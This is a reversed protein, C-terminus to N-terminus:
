GHPGCAAAHQHFRASRATRMCASSGDSGTPHRAARAVESSSGRRARVAPRDKGTEGVAYRRRRRERGAWASSRSPDFRPPRVSPRVRCRSASYNRRRGCVRGTRACGYIHSGDTVQTTTRAGHREAQLAGHGAEMANRRVTHTSRTARWMRSRPRASAPRPATTSASTPSPSTRTPRTSSRSPPQRSTDILNSHHSPGDGPRTRATILHSTICLATVTASASSSSTPRCPL